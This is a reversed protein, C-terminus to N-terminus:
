HMNRPKSLGALECAVAETSHTRSKSPEVHSINAYNEITIIQENQDRGFGAFSSGVM